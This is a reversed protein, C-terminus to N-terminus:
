KRTPRRSEIIVEYEAVFSAVKAPDMFGNIFDNQVSRSQPGPEGVSRNYRSILRLRNLLVSMDGRNPQKIEDM